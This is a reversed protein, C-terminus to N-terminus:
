KTSFGETACWDDLADMTQEESFAFWQELLNRNALLAKFRGYAGKRRFISRVEGYQDSAYRKTFDYALRVGIDLDYKSPVPAYKDPDDVNDPLSEQELDGDDSNLFVRGTQRCVYAESEAVGSSVLEVAFQLEALDVSKM